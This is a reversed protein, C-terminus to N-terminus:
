TETEPPYLSLGLKWVPQRWRIKTFAHGDRDRSPHPDSEGWDYDHLIIDPECAGIRIDTIRGEIVTLILCPRPLVSM